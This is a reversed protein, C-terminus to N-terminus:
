EFGAETVLHLKHLVGFGDVDDTSRDLVHDSLVILSDELTPAFPAIPSEWCDERSYESLTPLDFETLFVSPALLAIEAEWRSISGLRESLM